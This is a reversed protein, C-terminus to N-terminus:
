SGADRSAIAEVVPALAREIDQGLATLKWGQGAAVRTSAVHHVAGVIMVAALTPQPEATDDLPEAEILAAIRKISDTRRSLSLTGAANVDVLCLRALEPEHTCFRLFAGLGLRFRERPTIGARSAGAILALVHDIADDYAALLCGAMGATLGGLAEPPLSAREAVRMVTAREYGHEAVVAAVAYRLRERQTASLPSMDLESTFQKGATVPM